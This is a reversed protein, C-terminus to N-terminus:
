STGTAPMAVMILHPKGKNMEQLVGVVVVIEQHCVGIQRGVICTQLLAFADIASTGECVVSMACWMASVERMVIAMTLM